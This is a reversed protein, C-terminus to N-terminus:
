FLEDVFPTGDEYTREITWFDGDRKFGLGILDAEYLRAPEPTGDLNMALFAMTWPKRQYQNWWRVYSGNSIQIVIRQFKELTM